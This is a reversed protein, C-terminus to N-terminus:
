KIKSFRACRRGRDEGGEQQEGICERPHAQKDGPSRRNTVVELCAELDAWGEGSTLGLHGDTAGSAMICPERGIIFGTKEGIAEEVKWLGQTQLHAWAGPQFGPARQM